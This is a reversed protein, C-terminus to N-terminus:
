VLTITIFAITFKQKSNFSKFFIISFNRLYKDLWLPFISISLLDKKILKCEFPGICQISILKWIFLIDGWTYNWAVSFPENVM